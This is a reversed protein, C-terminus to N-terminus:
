PYMSALSMVVARMLHLDLFGRFILQQRQHQCSSVPVRKRFRISSSAVDKFCVVYLWEYMTSTNTYNSEKSRNRSALCHGFFSITSTTRSETGLPVENWGVFDANRDYLFSYWLLGLTANDIKICVPLQKLPPPRLQQAERLRIWWGPTQLLRPWQLSHAPLLRTRPFRVQLFFRLWSCRCWVRWTEGAFSRYTVYPNLLFWVFIEWSLFFIVYFLHRSWSDM